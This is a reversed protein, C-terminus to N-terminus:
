SYLFRRSQAVATIVAGQFGGISVLDGGYLEEWQYGLLTHGDDLGKRCNFM